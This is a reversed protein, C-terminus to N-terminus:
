GTNSIFDEDPNVPIKAVWPSEPSRTIVIRHKTGIRKKERDFFGALGSAPV